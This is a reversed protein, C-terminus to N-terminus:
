RTFCHVQNHSPPFALALILSYLMAGETARSTGELSIRPWRSSSEDAKLKAQVKSEAVICRATHVACSIAQSTSLRMAAAASASLLRGLGPRDKGEIPCVNPFQEESTTHESDCEM